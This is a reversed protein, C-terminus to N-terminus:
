SSGRWASAPSRRRFPTPRSRTSSRPARTRVTDQASHVMNEVKGITAERVAAKAEMFEERIKSKADDLEAKVEARLSSAASHFEAKVEAKVSEKAEHFQDMAQEKLLAPNLRGHLEQITGGMEARTHAISERLKSAEKDDGGGASPPNTGSM